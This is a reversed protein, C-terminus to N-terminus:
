RGKRRMRDGASTAGKRHVSEFIRAAHFNGSPPVVLVIQRPLEEVFASGATGNWRLGRNATRLKAIVVYQIQSTCRACAKASETQGRAHRNHRPRRHRFARERSQPYTSFDFAM